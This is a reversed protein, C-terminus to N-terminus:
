MEQPAGVGILHLGNRLVSKCAKVLALRAATLPAEQGLVQAKASWSNTERALTLLYSTVESPEANRAAGEVIQPFRGLLILLPGADGLLSFDPEGGGEGKEAARRLISCLRAHTYQVYPGTDGEFSLVEEWVFEIDKVSQYAREVSPVYLFLLVGGTLCLVLFIHLTITGLWGTALWSLARRTVRVPLAHLLFNQVIADAGERPTEPFWHRWMTRPSWGDGSM